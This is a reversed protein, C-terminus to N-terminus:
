VFLGKLPGNSLLVLENYMKLDLFMPMTLHGLCFSFLVVCVSIMGSIQQGLNASLGILALSM